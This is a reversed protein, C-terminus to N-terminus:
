RVPNQKYKCFALFCNLTHNNPHSFRLSFYVLDWVKSPLYFEIQNWYYTLLSKCAHCFCHHSNFRRSLISYPTSNFNFDDISPETSFQTSKGLDEVTQLVSDRVLCYAKPTKVNPRVCFGRNNKDPAFSLSACLQIADILFINHTAEYKGPKNM